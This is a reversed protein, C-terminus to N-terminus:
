KPDLCRLSWWPDGQPPWGWAVMDDWVDNNLDTMEEWTKAGCSKLFLVIEYQETSMAGCDPTQAADLATKHEGGMANLYAGNEVLFRVIRLNGQCAAAQLASGYKGGGANVDAGKEVLLRVVELSWRLAHSAAQLASGLKGGYAHIDAGNEVLFRVIDLKGRSAAAQLASGYEGGGANVNVGQAVLFQVVDLSQCYARAAAQLVSGYKGGNVNVDAGNEALFRVVELNGSYAGAQLAEGYKGGGANVDAGKEVLFRVIELKGRSAAAQLASGYKGGVANVDAGKGILFDVVDLSKDYGRSAAHLASGYKEGHGNVDAGNDVLFCVVELHGRYAGAHLASGYEGGGANVNAGKAVLFRVIELKGRSAGAQLASGYEGGGQNVDAGKELLLQVIELKGSYAGAQLPSGYYGGTSNVDAREGVLFRIVAMNGSYIAAQLVSGYKGGSANLNAGHEVLFRVVELNRSSAGAQLVSGYYGGCAHIDAGNDVLFRVIDLKGSSAGAQLVSGYEGGHVNIDGGNEFLFRVIELKGWRAGAQLASGDYGGSKNVDAGNGVLFRVIELKGCSAAAQLASGTFGGSKNVDTGQKVLFRVVDWNESLAGCAAQLATGCGGSVANVDAGQAVFFRVVELHGYKAGDHLALAYLGEGANPYAENETLLRIIELNGRYVGALLASRYSERDANVHARNEVLFRVVEPKNRFAGARLVPGYGGGTTTGLTTVARLGANSAFLAQFCQMRIPPARKSEVTAVMANALDGEGWECGTLLTKVLDVLGFFAASALTSSTEVPKDEFGDENESEDLIRPWPFSTYLDELQCLLQRPGNPLVHKFWCFESYLFPSDEEYKLQLVQFHVLVAICSRAIVSHALDENVSFWTDNPVLFYEKVSAHALSVQFFIDRSVLSTGLDMVDLPDVFRHNERFTPLQVTDEEDGLEAALLASLEDISIAVSAFSLITFLRHAQPRLNKPITGLIYDYTESLTKPLSGLSQRLQDYTKVQQLIDVQCAVMRFQGDARENLLRRALEIAERPWFAWKTAELERDVFARIDQRVLDGQVGIELDVKGLFARHIDVEERGTVMVKTRSASNIASFTVLSQLLYKRQALPLEDLADIVIFIPKTSAAVLDNLTVQLSALQPQLSGNSHKQHLDRVVGTSACALQCVLSRLLAEESLTAPNTFEFYYYAVYVDDRALLTGIVYSSTVTKGTGMLGHFWFLGGEKMWQLFINNKLLWLCTAGSRARINADLKSTQHIPDLWKKMNQFITGNLHEEVKALRMAVRSEADRGAVSNWRDISVVGFRECLKEELEDLRMSIEETSLYGMAVGKVRSIDNEFLHFGEVLGSSVTFRFYFSGLDHCQAAVDDAVLQCSQLLGSLEEANNQSTLPQIGPNGSGINVLCALHTGKVFVNRLERVLVHTPNAYGNLASMFREEEIFVAPIQVHNSLTAHLVQRISCRPNQGTRPHYNRLLRCCAAAVPNIVCVLCKTSPNPDEFPSDLSTEIKFVQVIEGMTAWLTELCAQQIKYNWAHSSFLRRELIGHAQIAQRITM